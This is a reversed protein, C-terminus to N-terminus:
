RKGDRMKEREKITILLGSQAPPEELCWLVKTVLYEKRKLLISDGVTPKTDTELNVMMNEEECKFWVLM